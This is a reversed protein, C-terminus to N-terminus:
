CIPREGTRIRVRSGPFLAEGSEEFRSWIRERARQKDLDAV